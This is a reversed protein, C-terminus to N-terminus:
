VGRVSQLLCFGLELKKNGAPDRAQTSLGAFEKVIFDNTVCFFM